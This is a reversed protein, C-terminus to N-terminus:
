TRCIPSPQRLGKGSHGLAPVSKSVVIRYDKPTRRSRRAPSEEVNFQKGGISNQTPSKGPRRAACASSAMPPSWDSGGAREAAEVCARCTGRASGRRGHRIPRSHPPYRAAARHSSDSRAHPQHRASQLRVREFPVDLEEAMIQMLGTSSGTGLECCGTFLTARGTRASARDLFRDRDEPPGYPGIEIATMIQGRVCQALAFGVILAGAGKLFPPPSLTHSSRTNM